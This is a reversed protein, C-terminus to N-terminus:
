KYGHCGLTCLVLAEGEASTSVGKAIEQLRMSNFTMDTTLIGQKIQQQQKTVLNYRVRKHGWGALSRIWPIEWVLIRSHTAMEKELPVKHGLSQVQMEQM